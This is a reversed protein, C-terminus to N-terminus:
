LLEGDEEFDGRCNGLGLDVGDVFGQFPQGVFNALAVHGVGLGHSNGVNGQHGGVGMQHGHIQRFDLGVGENISPKLPALSLNWVKILNAGFAQSSKSSSKPGIVSTNGVLFTNLIISIFM